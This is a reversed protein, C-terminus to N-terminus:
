KDVRVTRLVAVFQLSLPPNIVICKHNNLSLNSLHVNQTINQFRIRMTVKPTLDKSVAWPELM